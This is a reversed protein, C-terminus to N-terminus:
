VNAQASRISDVYQYTMERICSKLNLVHRDLVESLAIPGSAHSMGLEEGGGALMFGRQNLNITGAQVYGYHSIRDRLSKRSGESLVFEFLPSYKEHLTILPKSISAPKLKGLYTGLRRFSHFDNKFYNCIARALYDLCRRYALIFAQYEFDWILTNGLTVTSNGVVKRYNFKEINEIVATEIAKLREHHYIVCALTNQLDMLFANVFRHYWKELAPDARWETIFTPEPNTLYNHFYLFPQRDTASLQYGTISEIASLCGQIEPSFFSETMKKFVDTDM